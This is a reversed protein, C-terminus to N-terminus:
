GSGAAAPSPDKHNRESATGGARWGTAKGLKGKGRRRPSPPGRGASEGAPAPRPLPEKRENRWLVEGLINMTRDLIASLRYPPTDPSRRPPWPTRVASAVARSPERRGVVVGRAASRTTVRAFLRGQAQRLAPAWTTMGAGKTIVRAYAPTWGSGDPDYRHTTSSPWRMFGRGPPFRYRLARKGAKRSKWRATTRAARTMPIRIIKYAARGFRIRIVM